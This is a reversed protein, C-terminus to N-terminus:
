CELSRRCMVGPPTWGLPVNETCEVAVWHRGLKVEVYVHTCTNPATGVAVLKTAFGISELMSAVLVSKDDCDGYKHQLIFSAPHLTEVNRIDPLYAIQDRVFAHIRRIMEAYSKQPRIDAVLKAANLRVLPDVKGAKVLKKMARLTADTGALGDPIVGLTMLSM